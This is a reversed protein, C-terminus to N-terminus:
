PRITSGGFVPIETRTMSTTEVATTASITTSAAATPTAVPPVVTSGISSGTGFSNGATVIGNPYKVDLVRELLLPDTLVPEANADCVNYGRSLIYTYETANDGVFFKDIYVHACPLNTSTSGIIPALPLDFEFVGPASPNVTITTDACEITGVSSSSFHLLSDYYLACEVGSDAASFALQSERATSSLVNQKISITFVGAGILLIISAILVVFLIVFGEHGKQTKSFPRNM